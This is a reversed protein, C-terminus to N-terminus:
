RTFIMFACGATASRDLDLRITDGTVLGTVCRVNFVAASPAGGKGGSGVFDGIYAGHVEVSSGNNVRRNLRVYFNSDNAQVDAVCLIWATVPDGAGGIPCTWTGVYTGTFRANGADAVRFEPMALDAIKSDMEALKQDMLEEFDALKQNVRAELATMKDELNQKITLLAKVTPVRLSSPVTALDDRLCKLLYQPHPHTPETIVGTNPDTIDALQMGTFDNIHENLRNAVFDYNNDTVLQWTLVNGNVNTPLLVFRYVKSGLVDQVTQGNLTYPEGLLPELKVVPFTNVEAQPDVAVVSSFTRTGVVVQGTGHQEVEVFTGAALGPTNPNPLWVAQNSFLDWHMNLFEHPAFATATTAYWGSSTITNDDIPNEYSATEFAEYLITGTSNTTIYITHATKALAESVAPLASREEIKWYQLFGPWTTTYQAHMTSKIQAARSGLYYRFPLASDGNSSPGYQNWDALTTKYLRGNLISTNQEAITAIPTEGMWLVTGLTRHRNDVMSWGSDSIWGNTATNVRGIRWMERTGGGMSWADRWIQLVHRISGNTDEIEKVELYGLGVPCNTIPKRVQGTVVGNELHLVNDKRNDIWWEGPFVFSNLNLSDAEPVGNINILYGRTYERQWKSWTKVGQFLLPVNYAYVAPQYFWTTAWPRTTPVGTSGYLVTGGGTKYTVEPTTNTRKLCYWIYENGQADYGGTPLNRGFEVRLVPVLQQLTFSDVTSNATPQESYRSWVGNDRILFRGAYATQAVEEASMGAVPSTTAWVMVTAGANNIDYADMLEQYAATLTAESPNAGLHSLDEINVRGLFSSNEWEGDEFHNDRITNTLKWVGEFLRRMLNSEYIKEITFWYRNAVSISQARKYVYNNTTPIRSDIPNSPYFLQTLLKTPSNDGMSAYGDGMFQDYFTIVNGAYVTTGGGAVSIPPFAYWSLNVSSPLSVTYHGPSTLADLSLNSVKKHQIDAEWPGWALPIAEVPRGEIYPDETLDDETMQFLLNGNGDYVEGLYLYGTFTTQLPTTLHTADISQITVGTKRVREVGDVITLLTCTDGTIIRKYEATHIETDFPATYGASYGPAHCYTIPAAPTVTNYWIGFGMASIGASMDNQIPNGMPQLYQFRFRMTYEGMGISRIVENIDHGPQDWTVVKSRMFVRKRDITYRGVRHSHYLANGTTSTFWSSTQHVYGNIATIKGTNDVTESNYHLINLYGQGDPHTSPFQEFRTGTLFFHGHDILQDYSIPFTYPETTYGQGSRIIRCIPYVGREVLDRFAAASLVVSEDTRQTQHTKNWDDIERYHNAVGTIQQDRQRVRHPDPNIPNLSDNDRKDM